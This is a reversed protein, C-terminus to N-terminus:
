YWCLLGYSVDEPDKLSTQLLRRIVMRLQRRRPGKTVDTVASTDGDMVSTKQTRGRLLRGVVMSRGGDM